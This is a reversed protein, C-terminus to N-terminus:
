RFPVLLFDLTVETLAVPLLPWKPFLHSFPRQFTPSQRNGISPRRASVIEHFQPFPRLSFFHSGLPTLRAHFIKLPGPLVTHRLLPPAATANCTEPLRSLQSVGV